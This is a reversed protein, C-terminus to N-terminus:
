REAGRSDAQDYAYRLALRCVIDDGGACQVASGSRSLELFRRENGPIEEIVGAIVSIGDDAALRRVSEIFQAGYRTLTRYKRYGWFIEERRTGTFRVVCVEGDADPRLEADCDSLARVAACLQPEGAPVCLCEPLEMCGEARSQLKSGDGYIEDAVRDCVSKYATAAAEQIAGHIRAELARKAEQAVVKEREAERKAREARARASDLSDKLSM